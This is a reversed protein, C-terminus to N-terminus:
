ASLTRNLILNLTLTLSFDDGNEDAIQEHKDVDHEEQAV